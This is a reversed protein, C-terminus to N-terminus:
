KLKKSRGALAVKLATIAKPGMGHLVRLDKEAWKALDSVSRVRAAALARLAPGSLGKPFAAANPHTQERPKPMPAPAKRGM